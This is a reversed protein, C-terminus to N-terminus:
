RDRLFLGASFLLAIVLGSFAVFYIVLEDDCAGDGPMQLFLGM